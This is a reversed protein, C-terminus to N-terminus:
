PAHIYLGHVEVARLLDLVNGTVTGNLGLRLTPHPSAFRRAVALQHKMDRWSVENEIIRKFETKIRDPEPGWLSRDWFRRQGHQDWYSARQGTYGCNFFAQGLAEQWYWLKSIDELLEPTLLELGVLRCLGEADLARRLAFLLGRVNGEVSSSLPAAGDDDPTFCCAMNPAIAM